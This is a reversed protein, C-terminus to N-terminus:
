YNYFRGFRILATYPGSKSFVPEAKIEGNEAKLKVPIYEERGHNSPINLTLLAKVTKKTLFTGTDGNITDLINLVFTKFIFFCSAPHGPLGIVAKNGTKAIITPKGPKVAIGHVFVESQELSEIANLTEDKVGASSGGSILIVDNEIAMYEAAQKLMEFDDAVIGYIRPNAGYDILGSYILYSNM